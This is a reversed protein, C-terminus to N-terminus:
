IPCDTIPTSCGLVEANFAVVPVNEPATLVVLRVPEVYSFVGSISNVSPSSAIAMASPPRTM